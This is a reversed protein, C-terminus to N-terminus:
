TTLFHSEGAVWATYLHVGNRRGIYSVSNPEASKGFLSVFAKYDEFWAHEQSFSHVLMVASKANFREAEILASATRHLLQYRIHDVRNRSIRLRKTLAALRVQKGRSQDNRWEGTLPGFEENVKGEVTITVLDSGSKALVFVDGQSARVGGPLATQYEPFGLVFELNQLQSYGSDVFVQSVSEPFGQASEWRNALTKASYGTRWQKSPSSLLGQWSDADNTPIFFKAM